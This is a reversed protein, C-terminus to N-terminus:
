GRIYGLYGSNLVMLARASGWGRFGLKLFRVVSDGCLSEVLLTKPGM